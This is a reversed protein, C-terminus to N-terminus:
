RGPSYSCYKGRATWLIEPNEPMKLRPTVLFYQASNGKGINDLTPNVMAAKTSLYGDDTSMWTTTGVDNGFVSWTAPIGNNFNEKALGNQGYSFNTTIALIFMLMFGLLSSNKKIFTTKINM